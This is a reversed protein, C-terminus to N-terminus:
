GFLNRVDNFTVLVFISLLLVMGVVTAKYEMDDNIRGGSLVKLIIFFIKGGDLGPIPIINFFALNLSVLALLMLYSTFGQESTQGVVRVLGVPGSVDDKSIGRRFMSQFAGLMLKNIEWTTTVGSSLCLAPNKTYGAVIGIMYKGSEGDLEPMLFATSTKGDRTYVVEMKDGEHYQDVAMVVKNWTNTRIGDIEVITDGAQLGAAAAPSDPMIDGLTNSPVGSILYSLTIVLIAIIVNMTVGALLIAVKQLNSKNSYSRPDDSAEEEGEMACFGGLPLLRVSYQTEGKQRKFLLPGMGVSFENVKVGCLKAVILHGWEHPIILVLMMVVFLIATKM